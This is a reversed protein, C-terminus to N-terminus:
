LHFALPLRRFVASLFALLIDSRQVERNQDIM